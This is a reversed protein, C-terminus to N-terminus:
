EPLEWLRVTQDAGCSVAQRGGAAFVVGHVAGQHGKFCYLEQLAAVDWLRVNGAADGTLLRKGDPAYAVAHFADPGEVGHGKSSKLDSVRLTGDQGVSVATTGDPAFAVGRAGGTHGELSQPPRDEAMHWLLVQGDGGGSLARRGDASIAVANVGLGDHGPLVRSQRTELDWLLLRGGADGSLLRKGDPGFALATVLSRHGVLVDKAQLKDLDWLRISLMAKRSKEGGGSAALRGDPTVALCRVPNGHDLVTLRGTAPPDWLAIRRDNSGSLVLLRDKRTTVAVAWVTLSHEEQRSIEGVLRLRLTRVEGAKVTFHDPLLRRDSTDAALRLAYDGPPLSRPGEQQLDLPQETDGQRLLLPLKEDFLFTVAAPDPPPEPPPRTRARWALTAAPVSTLLVALATLALWRRRSPRPKLGDEIARLEEAVAQASPPREEPRKALLRAILAALPAPLAPNLERPPPPQSTAVALVIAFVDNGAFAPRGTALRYLVCGLSFLDARNDVAQGQAQEPAMYAPTGVLAGSRTQSAEEGQLARALGFDLIKVRFSGAASEAGRSSSAPSSFDGITQDETKETKREASAVVETSFRDELWINGPKIDRHILGRAHAAALGQAAERGIQLVEDVPLPGETRALRSELTEGRLLQMALFPVGRDEDAQYVAVINDHEIAAIAQAERLFRQRADGRRALEPRIVKLAVHRKLRPDEALYVMGMGGSGLMGLVRYPGLRGLEDAAQAQALLNSATGRDFAGTVAASNPHPPLTTGDGAPRLRKLVPLMAAVVEPQPTVPTNECGRMASVLPDDARLSQLREACRPCTSIHNELQEAAADAVRGLLFKELLDVDPCHSATPM